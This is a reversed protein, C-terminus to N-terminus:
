YRFIGSDQYMNPKGYGWGWQIFGAVTHNNRYIHYHFKFSLIWTVGTHLLLFWVSAMNVNMSENFRDNVPSFIFCLNKVATTSQISTWLGFPPTLNLTHVHYSHYCHWIWHIFMTATIVTFDSIKWDSWFSLPNITAEFSICTIKTYIENKFCKKKIHTQGSMLFM